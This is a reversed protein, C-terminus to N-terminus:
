RLVESTGNTSQLYDISVGYHNGRKLKYLKVIKKIVLMNRIYDSLTRDYETGFYETNIKKMKSLVIGNPFVKESHLLVTDWLDRQRTGKNTTDRLGLIVRLTTM